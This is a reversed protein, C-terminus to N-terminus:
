LSNQVAKLPEFLGHQEGLGYTFTLRELISPQGDTDLELLSIIDDLLHAQGVTNGFVGVYNANVIHVHFHYYSPQYHIYFRLSGYELGWREKVIRTAESRIKKLMDIHHKRLDRLCKIENTLVITQLYLSSVTTLDWKMDPLILFGYEPNPDKFLVKEAESKGSLIDHVWQIRSPPIAAIYPKVVREYIEPTERFMLVQQKSYKRIHAETAPYVIKVDVDPLADNPKFWAFFWHYIDTSQVLKTTSVNDWLSSSLDASLSSRELRVVAPLAQSSDKPDPFTGLLALSHTIPDDNLVRDFKFQKLYDLDSISHM